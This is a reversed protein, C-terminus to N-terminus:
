AKNHILLGQLKDLAKAIDIAEQSPIQRIVEKTQLDIVKVLTKGTDEDISFQLGNNFPQVFEKLRTVADKVQDRTAPSAEQSAAAVKVPDAAATGAPSQTTDIQRLATSFENRSPAMGGTVLPSIQPSGPVQISM